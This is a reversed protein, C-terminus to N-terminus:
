RVSMKESPMTNYSISAPRLGNPPLDFISVICEPQLYSKRVPEKSQARRPRVAAPAPRGPRRLRTTARHRWEPPARARSSALPWFRRTRVSKEGGSDAPLQGAPFRSRVNGPRRTAPHRCAPRRTALDETKSPPRVIPLSLPKGPGDEDGIRKLRAHSSLRRITREQGRSSSRTSARVSRRSSSM